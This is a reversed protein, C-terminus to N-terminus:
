IAKLAAIKKLQKMSNMNMTISDQQQYPNMNETQLVGSRAKPQIARRIGGSWCYVSGSCENTQGVLRGINIRRKVLVLYTAFETKSGKKGQYYRV